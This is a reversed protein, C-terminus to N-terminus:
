VAQPGQGEQRRRIGRTSVPVTDATRVSQSDILGATPEANRGDAERVRGRLADHIREVTGADHWWTFYWYVTPWPAFDKRCSGGLVGPGYSTSSRTWSGVDPISRGGGAGRVLGRWRFCRSWWPGSNM